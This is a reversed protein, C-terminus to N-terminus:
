RSAPARPSVFGPPKVALVGCHLHQLVSEATNGVLLGPIGTRAVTGMVVLDAGLATALTSIEREAPGKPMHLRPALYDFAESGIHSRLLGFQQQLVEAHRQRITDSIRSAQVAAADAWVAALEAEPADWAHVLHLQAFDSLALSSALELIRRNLAAEDAAPTDADFGLAALIVSYNPRTDAAMLWVPCPCERLLQLDDSGFLRDVWDPDEAAKLVLDHPGRLVAHVVEAVREGVWVEAHIQLRQRFPAIVDALAQEREAVRALTLNDAMEPVVDVVTLEAQNNDALTVARAIAASQAVGPDAIYLLHKFRNM